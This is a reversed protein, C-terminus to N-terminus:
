IHKNNPITRIRRIGDDDAFQSCIRKRSVAAETLATRTQGTAGSMATNSQTNATNSQTNATNSQLFNSRLRFKAVICRNRFDLEILYKEMCPEDKIRAYYTCASNEAIEASWQQKHTDSLRLKVAHKIYEVSFGSCEDVWFDRM